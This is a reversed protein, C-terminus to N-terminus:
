PPEAHYWELIRSCADRVTLDSVDVVHDSINRYLPDREDYMQKLVSRYYVHEIDPIPAAKRRDDAQEIVSEPDKDRLLSGTGGANLYHELHRWQASPTAHLYVASGYTSLVRRTSSDMITHAGTALVIRRQQALELIIDHERQMSGQEGEREYLEVISAEAHEQLIDDSDYFMRQTKKALLKGIAVKGAGAPGVIFINDHQPKASKGSTGPM